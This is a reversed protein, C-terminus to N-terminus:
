TGNTFVTWPLYKPNISSRVFQLLLSSVTSSGTLHLLDIHNPDGSFSVINYIDNNKTPYHGSGEIVATKLM